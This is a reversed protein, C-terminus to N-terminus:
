GLEFTTIGYIGNIPLEFQQNTYMRATAFVTKMGYSKALAVGTKNPEPVDLFIEENPVSSALSDLITKAIEQTEAFLPGIKHGNFCKRILGYGCIKRSAKKRIIFSKANEQFLWCKLFEPRPTSFYKADFAVVEEFDKQSIPVCLNSKKGTIKGTFRYNKHAFKFGYREYSTQMQLVGDLGANMNRCSTECFRQLMSGIGRRRFEPHVIIFGVFAYDSSYKVISTTGVIRNKIKATYFGTPDTNYFCEADNVGPNWGEQRAWEVALDMEQRNMKDIKVESLSFSKVNM